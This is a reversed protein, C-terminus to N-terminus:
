WAKLTIKDLWTSYDAMRYNGDMQFAVNLESAGSNQPWYARNVYSKKGNLTVAIFKVQGGTTREFEWVLHNWKYAVPRACPIGTSKWGEHANWVRWTKTNVLNCETGFIFKKGNLSQNVDFELAQSAGPDKMYFYLDYVFRRVSSNAGLQKWWLANAYPTSGGINFKVAKGDLSPSSIWQQMSFQASPGSGWQGACVTCWQWGTMQDINGYTRATSPVSTSGSSTSSTTVNVYLVKSFSAGSQDWGKVTLKRTGRAASVYTDVRSGSVNKVLVSDLYVQMAAMASSSSGSAVVHIPSGVSQGNYPTSVTVTGAQASAAVALALAITRALCVAAKRTGLSM